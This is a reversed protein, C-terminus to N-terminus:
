NYIQILDPGWLLVMPLPHALLVDVLTRLAQPWLDMPGLPTRSWDTARVLAAM